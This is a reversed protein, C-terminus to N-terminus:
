ISKAILKVLETISELNVSNETATKELLHLKSLGFSTTVAMAVSEALSQDFKELDKNRSHCFNYYESKLSRLEDAYKIVVKPDGMSLGILMDAVFDLKGNVKFPKKAPEDEVPESYLIANVKFLRAYTSAMHNAEGYSNIGGTMLVTEGNDKKAVIGFKDGTKEVILETTM